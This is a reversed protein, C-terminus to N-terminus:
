VPRGPIPGPTRRHASMRARQPDTSGAYGQVWNIFNEAITNPTKSPGVNGPGSAYAWLANTSNGGYKALLSGLLKVGADINQLPDLPDAVGMTAVTTDNLQMVGYDKTGNPNATNIAAPNFGSEHAAVGLAIGPPVGYKAAADRIMQQIQDTTYAM